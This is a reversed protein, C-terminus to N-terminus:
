GTPAMPETLLGASHARLVAELRSQAGLESLLARVHNRVTEISVGMEEAMQTTTLGRGLLQLAEQQRPTLEPAPRLGRPPAPRAVVRDRRIVGFVGVVQHGKKLPVSSIEVEHREGSPSTIATEHDTFPAQGLIRLAFMRRARHLHDAAVVDTFRRGVAGPIMASAADNLWVVTGRRDLVYMPVPVTQLAGHIDAGLAQLQRELPEVSVVRCGQLAGHTPM